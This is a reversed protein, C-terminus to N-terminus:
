VIVRLTSPEEIVGLGTDPLHEIQIETRVDDTM